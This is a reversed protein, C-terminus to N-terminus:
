RAERKRKICELDIEYVTGDEIILEKQEEEKENEKNWLDQKEM